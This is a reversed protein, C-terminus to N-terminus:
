SLQSSRVSSLRSTGPEIGPLGVVPIRFPSHLIPFEAIRMRCEANPDPIYSLRSLVQKALLPDATRNREDGGRTERPHLARFRYEAWPPIREKVVSYRDPIWETEGFCLPTLSSLTYPPHRPVLLRHLAHYAAILRPYDCVSALGLIGSHPLGERSIGPSGARFGYPRSALAPFQFMETGTPLSLM